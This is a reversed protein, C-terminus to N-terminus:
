FSGYIAVTPGQTYDHQTQRTVTGNIGALAYDLTSLVQARYGASFRIFKLVHGINLGYSLGMEGVSYDANFSNQNAGTDPSDVPLNLKFYGFAYSGYLAWNSSGLPAAGAVGITPGGWVLEGAGYDQRIQKYGLTLALGPLVYYGGNVDLEYRRGSVTVPPNLQNDINGTLPYTEPTLYSASLLFNDYRISAQPTLVFRTDSTLAQTIGVAGTSYEVTAPRWTTWSSEWGKLGVTISLDSDDAVAPVAILCIAALCPLRIFLYKCLSM